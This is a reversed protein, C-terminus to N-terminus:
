SWLPLASLAAGGIVLYAVLRYLRERGPDFLAAGVWCGAMYPLIAIAGILMPALEAHGWLLLMGILVLDCGLLYLMNTARIAAPGMTSAMTMVIVPPGPIGAVGGLFGGLGGTGFLIAPTLAGHFRWGAVMLAVCALTVVGLVLRFVEPEMRTLLLLGVPLLCLMGACLWVLHARTADRLARPVMPLPGVLDMVMLALLSQVPSLVISAFPLFIMATGFGSFGRVVGALVAGSLVLWLGDTTLATALQNAM